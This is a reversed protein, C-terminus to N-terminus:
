RYDVAIKVTRLRLQLFTINKCKDTQECLPYHWVRRSWVGRQSWVCGLVLCRRPGSVGEGSIFCRKGRSGTVVGGGKSGCFGETRMWSFHKRTYFYTALLKFKKVSDPLNENLSIKLSSRKLLPFGM